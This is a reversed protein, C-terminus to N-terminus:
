GTVVERIEAPDEGPASYGCWHADCPAPVFGHGPVAIMGAIDLSNDPLLVSGWFIVPVERDEVECGLCAAFIAHWGPEANKFSLLRYGIHEERDVRKKHKKKAMHTDYRVREHPTTLLAFHLYTYVSFVDALSSPHSVGKEM